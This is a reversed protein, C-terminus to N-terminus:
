KNHGKTKPYGRSRKKLSEGIVSVLKPNKAKIRM